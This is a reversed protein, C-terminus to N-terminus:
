LRSVLPAFCAGGISQPGWSTAQKLVYHCQAGWGTPAGRWLAARWSFEGARLRVGGSHPPRRQSHVGLGRILPEDPLSPREAAMQASGQLRLRESQPRKCQTKGVVKRPLPRTTAMPLARASTTEPKLGERETAAHPLTPLLYRAAPLPCCNAPPKSADALRV